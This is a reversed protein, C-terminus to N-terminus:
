SWTGSAGLFAISMVAKEAHGKLASSGTPAPAADAGCGSSNQFSFLARVRSEEAASVAWESATVRSSEAKRM